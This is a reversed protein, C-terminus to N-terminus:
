DAAGREELQRRGLFLRASRADGWRGAPTEEVNCINLVRPLDIRHRHRQVKVAVRRVPDIPNTFLLAGHVAPAAEEGADSPKPGELDAIFAEKARMLPLCEVDGSAEELSGCVLVDVLMAARGLAAQLVRRYTDTNMFGGARLADGVPVLVLIEEDACLSKVDAVDEVLM